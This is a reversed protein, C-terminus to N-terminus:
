DFKVLKDIICGLKTNRNVGIGGTVLYQMPITIIFLPYVWLTNLRQLFTRSTTSRYSYVCYEGNRGFDDGIMYELVESATPNTTGLAKSAERIISGKTTRCIKSKEIM